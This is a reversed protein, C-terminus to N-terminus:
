RAPPPPRQAVARVPASEAWGYRVAKAEVQTGPEVPFAATYLQWRGGDLRYGLSSGPTTAKVAVRLSGGDGEIEVSPRGTVPQTGGPWMRAIMREEPVDSWDEHGALWADLAERLRELVPAHAPDRALDRIEHPDERTDYLSEAPRPEFWLAAAGALEGREHRAWLERMSDLVDRWGLHEAGPTGPRYSRIYKYRDDRAARQRDPAEDVRDRAAFVTRRPPVASPGAFVRGDM